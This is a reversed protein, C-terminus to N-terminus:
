ADRVDRWQHYPQFWEIGLLQLSAAWFQDPHQISFDYLHDYTAMGLHQLLRQLHSGNIYSDQPDWVISPNQRMMTGGKAHPHRAFGSFSSFRGGAKRPVCHAGGTSRAYPLVPARDTDYADGKMQFIGEFTTMPGRELLLLLSSYGDTLQGARGRCPRSASLYKSWWWRRRPTTPSRKIMPRGEQERS